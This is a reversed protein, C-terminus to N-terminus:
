EEQLTFKEEVLEDFREKVARKFYSNADNSTVNLEEIEPYGTEEYEEPSPVPGDYADETRRLIAQAREEVREEFESAMVAVGNGVDIEIDSKEHDCIADKTEDVIEDKTSADVKSLVDTYSEIHNRVVQEFENTTMVAASAEFEEIVDDVFEGALHSGFQDIAGTVLYQGDLDTIFDEDVLYRIVDDTAAVDIVSELDSHDIRGDRDGRDAGRQLQNAVSTKGQTEDELREGVTYHEGAIQQIYGQDKLKRVFFDVDKPALNFETRFKQKTVVLNSQFISELEDVVQQGGEPTSFPDFYYASGERLETIDPSGDALKELGERLEKASFSGINFARDDRDEYTSRIESDHDDVYLFGHNGSDSDLAVDRCIDRLIDTDVPRLM